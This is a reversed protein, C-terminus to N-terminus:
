INNSYGIFEKKPFDPARLKITSQMKLSLVTGNRNERDEIFRSM